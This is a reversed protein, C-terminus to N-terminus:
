DGTGIVVHPMKMNTMRAGDQYRPTKPKPMAPLSSASTGTGAGPHFLNSVAGSAAAGGIKKPLGAAPTVAFDHMASHSMGLLGRNRKYLEGPHHEAISIATRQAQSVAPM